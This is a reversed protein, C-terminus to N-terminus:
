EYSLIKRTEKKYLEVEPQDFPNVKLLYGLYMVAIMNMQLFQGIYWEDKKPIVVSAYPRKKEFYAQQVGNLTANMIVSLSKGNINSLLQEPEKSFPVSLRSKNNKISVFMTFTNNPGGLHLQAMSHLDTTGISVTPTIGVNVSNGQIDCEKGISEALLQRFWMGVSQLDKSFLFLDSIYINKRYSVYLLGAIIAAPNEYFTSSSSQEVMYQAGDVLKKIDLGLLALPFLGVASFVSYRGGVNEPISLRDFQNKEALRWLPSGQDTIVVVFENYNHPRYRRLLELFIQFNAITETTRGSKSIVNLLIERDNELEKELSQFINNIYDSDISDAWYVKIDCKQENYDQGYLAEYIAMAGLNSGGIGIVVISSIKLKKKKDALEIIKAHVRYDNPLNISAYVSEYRTLRAQAIKQLESEIKKLVSDFENESVQCTDKYSFLLSKM